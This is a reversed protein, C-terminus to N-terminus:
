HDHGSHDDSGDSSHDMDMSDEDEVYEENAGAFDKAAAEIDLTTGDEFTLTLAVTDGALIPTTVDMLMIHNGGPELVLSDGSEITFGGEKESMSMGGADDMSTEHLEVMGSAPTSASVLVVAEDTSNVLEGFAATMGEETTKVWADTVTVAHAATESHAADAAQSTQTPTASTEAPTSDTSCAALTVAVLGGMAFRMVPTVVNM